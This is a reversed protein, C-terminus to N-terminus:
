LAAEIIILTDVKNRTADTPDGGDFKRAVDQYLLQMTLWSNKADEGYNFLTELYARYGYTNTSPSVMNNNLQIDVQSFLSHLLNNIPAVHTGNNLDSGDANVVKCEAYLYSNALDLYQEGAGKVLFEVPGESTLNAIPRHEVHQGKRHFVARTCRCICRTGDQCM